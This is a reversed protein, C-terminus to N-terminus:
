EMYPSPSGNAHIVGENTNEDNVENDVEKQWPPADSANGMEATAAPAESKAREIPEDTAFTRPPEVPEEWRNVPYSGIPRQALVPATATWFLFGCVFSGWMLFTRLRIQARTASRSCWMTGDKSNLEHRRPM